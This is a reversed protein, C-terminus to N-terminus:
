RVDSRGIMEEDDAHGLVINRPMILYGDYEFRFFNIAASTDEDHWSKELGASSSM